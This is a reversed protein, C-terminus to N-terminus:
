RRGPSQIMTELIRVRPVEEVVETLFRGDASCAQARKIFVYGRAEAGRAEAGRAGAGRAEAGRAGVGRAEAWPQGGPTAASLGRM